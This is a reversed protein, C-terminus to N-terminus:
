RAPVLLDRYEELCKEGSYKSVAAARANKSMEASLANSDRLRTIARRLGPPDGPDVVLGANEETVLRAMESDKECIAIVPKGAAFYSYIRSPVAAGWMGRVFSAVSVDCANLFEIQRERPMPPLITVNQLHSTNDKLWGHRVGSGIFLFHIRSDPALESATKAITDLDNPRGFNGASLVVFKDQLGLDRLLANEERPRPAIATTDAWNPIYDVPIALGATKMKLLQKMDRGVVVIRQAQKYVWRNAIDIATAVVSGKRLIGTAILQEPYLDHILLTYGAGRTLAAAAAVFPLTPPTTVVLVSDGERFCALAKVLTATSLSLMNFLRFLLVNKNLRLSPVRSISVGNVSEESRERTGRASYNPQGCIARVDLDKALSEAIATIYYGTSTLEPYYLESIIWIRPKSRTLEM